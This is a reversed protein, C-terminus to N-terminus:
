RRIMLRLLQTDTGRMMRLLYVGPSADGLDLTSIRQGAPFSPALVIRGLADVVSLQVPETGADNRTLQFSGEAPNPRVTYWQATVQGADDIGVSSVNIDL